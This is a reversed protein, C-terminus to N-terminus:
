SKEVLFRKRQVTESNIINELFILCLSVSLPSVSYLILLLTFVRYIIPNGDTSGVILYNQCPSLDIQTYVNGAGKTSHGWYRKSWITASDNM